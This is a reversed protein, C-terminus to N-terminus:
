YYTQNTATFTGNTGDANTITIPGTGVPTPLTQFFVKVGGTDATTGDTTGMAQPLLNKVTVDFTFPGGTTSNYSVNSSTLKVHLNQGGVIIDGHAGSSLKPSEDGCSVSRAAVDARCTLMASRSLAAPIAPALDAPPAVPVSQESCAVTLLGM